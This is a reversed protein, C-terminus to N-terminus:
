EEVNSFSSHFGLKLGIGARKQDRAMPELIVLIFPNHEQILRCVTRITALNALGRVNWILIKDM